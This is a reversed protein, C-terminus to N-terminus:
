ITLLLTLMNLVKDMKSRLTIWYYYCFQSLIYLCIIYFQFYIEQTSKEFNCMMYWLDKMCYMYFVKILWM